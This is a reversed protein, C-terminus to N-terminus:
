LVIFAVTRCYIRLDIITCALLKDILEIILLGPCNLDIVNVIVNM